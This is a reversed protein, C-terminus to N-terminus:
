AVIDVELDLDLIRVAAATGIWAALPVVQGSFIFQAILVVELPIPVVEKSGFGTGADVVLDARVLQQFVGDKHRLGIQPGIGEAKRHRPVSVSPIDRAILLVVEPQVEFMGFISAIAIHSDVYISPELLFWKLASACAKFLCYFAGILGLSFHGFGERFPFKALNGRSFKALNPEYLHASRQLSFSM